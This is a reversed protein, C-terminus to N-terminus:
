ARARLRGVRLDLAQGLGALLGGGPGLAGLAVEGGELGADGAEVGALLTEVGLVLVGDGHEVLDVLLQGAGALLGLLGIALPGTEGGAAVGELDAEVALVAGPRQQRGGVGDVPQEPGHGRQEVDLM